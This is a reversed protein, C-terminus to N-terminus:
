CFYTKVRSPAVLLHAARETRQPAEVIPGPRASRDHGVDARPHLAGGLVPEDEGLQGVVIRGRDARDHRELECRLDEEQRQGTERGVM